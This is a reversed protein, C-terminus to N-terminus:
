RRVETEDKAHERASLQREARVLARSVDTELTSFSATASLPLARFVVDVGSFGGALARDALTKLRRRVLNRKVANGIAKTVIFGFRASAEGSLPRPLIHAM